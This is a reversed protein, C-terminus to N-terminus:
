FYGTAASLAQDEPSVKPSGGRREVARHGEVWGPSRIGRATAAAETGSLVAREVWLWENMQNGGAQRQQARSLLELARGSGTGETNSPAGGEDIQCCRELKM